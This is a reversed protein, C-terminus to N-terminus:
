WAAAFGPEVSIWYIVTHATLDRNPKLVKEKIEPSSGAQGSGTIPTCKVEQPLAGGSTWAAALVVIMFYLPRALAANLYQPGDQPTITFKVISESAFETWSLSYTHLSGFSHVLPTCNGGLCEKGQSAMANHIIITTPTPAKAATSSM